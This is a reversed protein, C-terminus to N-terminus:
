VAAGPLLKARMRIGIGTRLIIAPPFGMRVKATAQATNADNKEKM